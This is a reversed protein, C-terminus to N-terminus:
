YYYYDDDDDDDDDDDNNDDDDDDDKNLSGMDRFHYETPGQLNFNVQPRSNTEEFRDECM